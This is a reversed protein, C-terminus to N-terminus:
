QKFPDFGQKLLNEVPLFLPSPLENWSFWKWQLCKEPEKITPEGSLYDALMYITVYHKNEAIFVDNTVTAFRVNRISVGAEEDTERHATEEPTEGFELHGGPFSWTGEGHDNTRQHMLVKGDKIVIVGVGVRPSDM